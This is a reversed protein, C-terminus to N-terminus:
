IFNQTIYVYGKGDVHIGIGEKVFIKTLVNERHGKSNMWGDVAQEAIGKLDLWDYTLERGAETVMVTSGAYLSGRFINESIGRPNSVKPRAGRNYRKVRDGPGEGRPNVHAIFSNEAMDVSHLRAVEAVPEDYGLVTLGHQKRQLNILRHIERALEEVDIDPRQDMNTVRTDVLQAARQYIHFNQTVYLHTQNGQFWHVGIGHKSFKPNLLNARNSAEAALTSVVAQALMEFPLWEIMRYRRGDVVEEKMKSFLPVRILNEHIPHDVGGPVVAPELGNLAPTIHYFIGREAVDAAHDAAVKALKNDHNLPSVGAEAREQNILDHIRKELRGPAFIPRKEPEFIPVDLKAKRFFGQMLIIEGADDVVFGGGTRTSMENLINERDQTRTWLDLIQDSLGDPNHWDYRVTRVGQDVFASSGKYIRGRYRNLGMEFGLDVGGILDQYRGKVAMTLAHSARAFEAQNRGAFEAVIEALQADRALPELGFRARQLNMRKLVARNLNAGLEPRQEPNAVVTKIKANFRSELDPHRALIAQTEFLDRANTKVALSLASEGGSGVTDLAAGALVLVEVLERNGRRVAHILATDGWRDVLDLDAKNQILLDVSFRQFNRTAYMLATMQGRDVANVDAGAKLLEAAARLSGVECAWHLPTKGSAGALNPNGGAQLLQAVLAQNDRYAAWVLATDGHKNVANPNVGASLAQAATEHDENMIAQVFDAEDMKPAPLELASWDCAGLVLLSVVPFLRSLGRM